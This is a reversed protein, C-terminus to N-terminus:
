RTEDIINRIAEKATVTTAIIAIMAARDTRIITVHTATIVIIVITKGKKKYNLTASITHM